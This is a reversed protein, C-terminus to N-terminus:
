GNLGGLIDDRMADMSEVLLPQDQRLLEVLDPRTLSLACYNAWIEEVQKSRTRYYSEGHGYRIEVGDIKKGRLYGDNLADYIDELKDVGNMATRCEIDMRKDYERRLAKYQKLNKKRDELTRNEISQYEAGIREYEIRYWAQVDKVADQYRAEAVRMVDLIKGKPKVSESRLAAASRRESPSLSLYDAVLFDSYSSSLWRDASEGRMLDIFHGLEHCTTSVTGEINDSTMKPINVTLKTVKGTTRNQYYSVSGRGAAYKVDFSGDPMNPSNSIEGIRSFIERLKPDADEVANVADIYAEFNQRKGKTNTFEDPYQSADISKLDIKPQEEKGTEIVYKEPHKWMDYYRDPDYGSVIPNDKDWSPIVRCDCNTHAHSATEETHYVFGRSALMICFKCTEVGTPVRAWRPKEPDNNANSAICENAAKRTEYDIRAACKDIFQSTPKGDVLDQVFARVAGSTAEADRRSDAIARYGDSIGFQARLGDYFEAALRAAVNSSAGCAPQMVAIVANRVDAVDATYDINSLAEILSAKAQDSVVNLAGSYNEIYSRPIIM